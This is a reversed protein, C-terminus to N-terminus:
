STAGKLHRHPNAPDAASSMPPAPAVAAASPSPGTGGTATCPPNFGASGWSNGQWINTACNPNQDHLDYGTPSGEFADAAPNNGDGNTTNGRITNGVANLTVRIGDVGNDSVHNDEVLMSTPGNQTPNWQFGVQVGIGNGFATSRGAHEM